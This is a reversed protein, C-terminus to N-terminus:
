EENKLPMVVRHQLCVYVDVGNAVSLKMPTNCVPCEGEVDNAFATETKNGGAALATSPLIAGRDMSKPIRRTTETVVSQLKDTM